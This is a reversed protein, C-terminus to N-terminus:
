EMREKMYKVLNIVQEKPVDKGAIVDDMLGEYYMKRLFWSVGQQITEKSYYSMPKEGYV